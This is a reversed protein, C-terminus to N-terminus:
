HIEGPRMSSAMQGDLEGYNVRDGHRQRRCPRSCNSRAARRPRVVAFDRRNLTAMGTPLSREALAIISADVFGLGLDHYTEILNIARLYDDRDLGMITFPAHIVARLIASRRETGPPVRNDM